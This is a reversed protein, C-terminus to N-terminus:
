NGGARAPKPAFGTVVHSVPGGALQSSFLEASVVARRAGHQRLCLQITIDGLPAARLFQASLDTTMADSGPPLHAMIILWATADALVLQAPGPIFGGPRVHKEMSARAVLHGESLELIEAPVGLGSTAIVTTDYLDQLAEVNCTLM